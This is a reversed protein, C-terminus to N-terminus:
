YFVRELCLGQPLATPGALRRDKGDLAKKFDALSMKGRGVELLTGVMSRVMNYLFGDGAFYFVATRGKKKVEARSLTRVTSSEKESGRTQFSRFDHKGKLVLLAQKVLEWDVAYTCPTAYRRLLPAPEYGLLLTYSYLKRKADFRAHFDAAAQTIERVGIDDPLWANMAQRFNLLPIESDTYFHIVQGRAHVGSDTRGSPYIITKKGTIRRLVKELEAQVTRARKQRQFGRFDTGDYEIVCKIVRRM